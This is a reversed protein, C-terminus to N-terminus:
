DSSVLRQDRPSRHRPLLNRGHGLVDREHHVTIAPLEVDLWPTEQDLHQPFVEVEGARVHAAVGRLAARARDGDVATGHLRARHKGYLRVAAVHLRDLPEGVAGLKVGELGREPLLVSELAPEARGAHDHGRRVQQLPGRIRRIVLNAM